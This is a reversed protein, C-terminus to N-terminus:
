KYGNTRYLFLKAKLWVHNLNLSSEGTSVWNHQAFSPLIKEIKFIGQYPEHSKAYKSITSHSANLEQAAERISLYELTENTDLNTVTVESRKSLSVIL